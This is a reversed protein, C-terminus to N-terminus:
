SILIRGGEEARLLSEMKIKNKYKERNETQKDHPQTATQWRVSNERILRIYVRKLDNVIAKTFIYLSISQIKLPFFEATQNHSVIIWDPM